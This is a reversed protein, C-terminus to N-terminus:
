SLQGKVLSVSHIVSPKRQVVRLLRNQEDASSSSTNGRSSDSSHSSVTSSSTQAKDADAAATTDVKENLYVEEAM